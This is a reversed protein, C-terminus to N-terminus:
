HDELASLVRHRVFPDHEIDSLFRQPADQLQIVVRELAEVRQTLFAIQQELTSSTSEPTSSTM